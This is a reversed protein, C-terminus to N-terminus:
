WITSLARCELYNKQRKVSCQGQWGPQRFYRMRVGFYSTHQWCKYSKRRGFYGWWQWICETVDGRGRWSSMSSGHCGCIVIVMIVSTKLTSLLTLLAHFTVAALRYLTVYKNRQFHVLLSMGQLARSSESVLEFMYMRCWSAACHVPVRLYMNWICEGVCFRIRRCFTGFYFSFIPYWLWRTMSVWPAYTYCKRKSFFSVFNKAINLNGSAYFLSLFLTM